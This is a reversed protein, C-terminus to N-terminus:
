KRQEKNKTRSNAQRWRYVKTRGPVNIHRSRRAEIREEEQWVKKRKMENEKRDEM